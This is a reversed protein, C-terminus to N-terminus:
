CFCEMLAVPWSSPRTATEECKTCRSAVISRYRRSTLSSDCLHIALTSSASDPESALPMADACDEDSGHVIEPVTADAPV